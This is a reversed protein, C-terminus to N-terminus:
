PLRSGSPPPSAGGAGADLLLTGQVEGLLRDAEVRLPDERAIVQLQRVAERLHGASALARARALALDATRVLPLAEVAGTVPSPSSQRAQDVFADFLRLRDWSAAVYLGGAVLALVVVAPLWVRRGAAIRGRNGRRRRQPSVDRPADGESRAAGQSSPAGLRDLRDLMAVALDHPGGTEVASTLLERAAKTEGRGFAAVGRQVLEESERQQEAEASRAREIYARARAHGRDIFLVRTWVGIAQEYRGSFYHDLGALLL